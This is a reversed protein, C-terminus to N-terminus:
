GPKVPAPRGGVDTDTVARMYASWYPSALVCRAVGDQVSVTAARGVGPEFYYMGRATRVALVAPSSFQCVPYFGQGLAGKTPAVDCNAQGFHRAFDVDNFDFMKDPRLPQAYAGRAVAPCPPGAIRALSADAASQAIQHRREKMDSAVAVAVALAGVTMAVVIPLRMSREEAPSLSRSM